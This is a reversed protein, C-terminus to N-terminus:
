FDHPAAWASRGGDGSYTALGTIETWVVGNDNTTSGATLTWSPESGGTTGATTCRWVRENGVTPTTLQRRIDGVSVSAGAAWAAVATWKTSGVYINAM